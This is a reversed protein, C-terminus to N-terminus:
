VLRRSPVPLCVCWGSRAPKLRRGPRCSLGCSALSNARAVLSSVWPSAGARFARVPAAPPRKAVPTMRPRAPNTRTSDYPREAASRPTSVTL